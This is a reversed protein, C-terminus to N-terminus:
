FTVPTPTQARNFFKDRHDSFLLACLNCHEFYHGDKRGLRVFIQTPPCFNPGARGAPRTVKLCYLLESTSMPIDYVM